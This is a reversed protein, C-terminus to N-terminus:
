VKMVSFYYNLFYEGTRLIQVNLLCVSITCHCKQNLLLQFLEATDGAKREIPKHGRSTSHNETVRSCLEGSAKLFASLGSNTGPDWRSGEQGAVARLEM